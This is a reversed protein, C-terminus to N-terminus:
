DIILPTGILEGLSADCSDQADDDQVGSVPQFEAPIMDMITQSVEDVPTPPPGGGTGLRARNYRSQEKKAKGKLDRWLHTLQKSTRKTVSAEMNFKQTLQEWAHAKKKNNSSDHRKDEIVQKYDEMLRILKTRELDSFNAGRKRKEAM